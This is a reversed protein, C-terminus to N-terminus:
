IWFWQHLHLTHGSLNSLFLLRTFYMWAGRRDGSWFVMWATCSLSCIHFLILFRYVKTQRPAQGQGERDSEGCGFSPFPVISIDNLNQNRIVFPLRERMRPSTWHFLLMCPSTGPVMIISSFIKRTWDSKGSNTMLDTNQRLVSNASLLASIPLLCHLPCLSLRQADRLRSDWSQHPYSSPWSFVSCFFGLSQALLLITHCGFVM